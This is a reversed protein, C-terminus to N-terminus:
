KNVSAITDLFFAELNKRKPEILDIEGTTAVFLEMFKKYRDRPLYVEIIEGTKGTYEFGRLLHEPCNGLLRFATGRCHIPPLHPQPEESEIWLFNNCCPCYFPKGRQPQIIDPPPATM